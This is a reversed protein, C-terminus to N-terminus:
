CIIVRVLRLRLPEPVQEIIMWIIDRPVAELPSLNSRSSLDKKKFRRRDFDEAMENEDLRNSGMTVLIHLM